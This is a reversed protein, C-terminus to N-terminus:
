LLMSAPSPNPKFSEAAEPTLDENQGVSHLQQLVPVLVDLKTRM